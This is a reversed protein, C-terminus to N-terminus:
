NIANCTQGLCEILLTRGAPCKAQYVFRGNSESVLSVDDCGRGNSFGKALANSAVTSAGANSVDTYRIAEGEVTILRRGDNAQQSRVIVADAGVQAGAARLQTLADTITPDVFGPKYRRASVMGVSQYPRAPSSYLIDVQGSRSGPTSNTTPVVQYTSCGALLLIAIAFFRM